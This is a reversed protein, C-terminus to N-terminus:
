TKSSQNPWNFCSILIFVIKHEIDQETIITKNKNM